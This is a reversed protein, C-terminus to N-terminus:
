DQSTETLLSSELYNTSLISRYKRKTPYNRRQRRILKPEKGKQRRKRKKRLSSESFSRSSSTCSSQSPSRSKAHKHKLRREISVQSNGKHRSCSNATLRLIYFLFFNIDYANYCVITQVLTDLKPELFLRFHM